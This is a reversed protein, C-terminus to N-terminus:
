FEADFTFLSEIFINEDEFIKLIDTFLLVKM